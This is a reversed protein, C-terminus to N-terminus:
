GGATGPGGPGRTHLLGERLPGGVLGLVTHAAACLPGPEGHRAVSAAPAPDPPQAPTTM